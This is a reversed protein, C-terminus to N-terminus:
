RYNIGRGNTRENDADRSDLLGDTGDQVSCLESGKRSLTRTQYVTTYWLRICCRVECHKISVCVSSVTTQVRWSITNSWNPKYCKWLGDVDTVHIKTETYYVREQLAAEVKLDLLLEIHFACSPNWPSLRRPMIKRTKSNWESCQAILHCMPTARDCSVM